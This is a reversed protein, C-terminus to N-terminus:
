LQYWHGVWGYTRGYMRGDM